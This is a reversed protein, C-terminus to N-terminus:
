RRGGRRGPSGQDPINDFGSHAIDSLYFLRLTGNDDAPRRQSVKFLAGFGGVANELLMSGTARLIQELEVSLVNPAIVGPAKPNASPFPSLSQAGAGTVGLAMM